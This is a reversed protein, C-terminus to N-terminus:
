CAASLPNILRLKITLATLVDMIVTAIIGIFVHRLVLAWM